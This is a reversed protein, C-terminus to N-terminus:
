PMCFLEVAGNSESNMIPELIKPNSPSPTEVKVPKAVPTGSVFTRDRGGTTNSEVPGNSEKLIMSRLLPNTLTQLRFERRLSRKNKEQPARLRSKRGSRTRPRRPEPCLFCAERALVLMRTPVRTEVVAQIPGTVQHEQPCNLGSASISRPKQKRRLQRSPNATM